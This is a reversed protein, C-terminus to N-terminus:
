ALLMYQLIFEKFKVKRVEPYIELKLGPLFYPMGIIFCSLISNCQGMSINAITTVSFILGKPCWPLITHSMPDLDQGPGLYDPIM